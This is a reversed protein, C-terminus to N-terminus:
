LAGKKTQGSSTKGIQTFLMFPISFIICLFYRPIIGPGLYGTAVIPLCALLVIFASQKKCYASNLLMFFYAFLYAPLSVILALIPIKQLSIENAIIQLKEFLWPIKSNAVAPEDYRVEALLTENGSKDTAWYNIWSYPNWADNTHLLFGEISEQPHNCFVYVWAKLRNSNSMEEMSSRAYDGLECNYSEPAKWGLSELYATDRENLIGTSYSYAIQQIPQAFANLEQQESKEVDLVEAVPVAWVFFALVGGLLSIIISRYNLSKRLCVACVATVLM